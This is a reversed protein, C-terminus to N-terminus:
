SNAFQKCCINNGPYCSPYRVNQLMHSSNNFVSTFTRLSSDKKPVFRLVNIKYKAKCCHGWHVELLLGQVSCLVNRGGEGIEEYRHHLCQPDRGFARGYLVLYFKSDQILHCFCPHVVLPPCSPCKFSGLELPGRSVCRSQSSYEWFGGSPFWFGKGKALHWM